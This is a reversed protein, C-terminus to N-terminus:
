AYSAQTNTLIAKISTADAHDKYFGKFTQDLVVGKANEIGPLSPSYLLEPITLALSATGSTWTWVLSSETAGTAKTILALDEFLTRINGSVQIIGEPIDARAGAGGVCYQDEDLGFEITLDGGLVTAIASGGEQMALQSGRFKTVAIAVPTADFSAAGAAFKGGVIDLTARVDGKPGFSITCKSIKCGNYLLYKGIGTFGTELVMSPQTNGPKFTHTYPGSGTTVPAGFMAKLWWGFGIVDVPVVVSGKVDMVDLAPESANRNNRILEDAILEQTGKLSNSYFPMQLGNPTGPTTGYVSEFDMLLQGKRGRAQTM